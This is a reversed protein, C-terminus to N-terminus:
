FVDKLIDISQIKAIWREQSILFPPLSACVYPDIILFNRSKRIDIQIEPNSLLENLEPSIQIMILPRIHYAVEYYPKLDHMLLQQVQYILNKNM